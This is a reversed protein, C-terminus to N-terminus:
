SCAGMAGLEMLSKQKKKVCGLLKTSFGYSAKFGKMYRQLCVRSPLVLIKHSRLHEYLRPSKMRLLICELLWEKNYRYGHNSNRRSVEFCARVAPQQKKPLEKLQFVYVSNCFYISKLYLFLTNLTVKEEFFTAKIAMNKEQMKKLADQLSNLKNNRRQLTRMAYKLRKAAVNSLQLRAKKKCRLLRAKMSSRSKKCSLCRNPLQASTRQPVSGNCASSFLCHGSLRGINNMNLKEFENTHGIGSCVTLSNAYSLEGEAQEKCRVDCEKHFQGALFISCKVHGEGVCFVVMKTFVVPPTEGKAFEATQYCAINNQKLKQLSWLESPRKLNFIFLEEAFPESMGGRQTDAGEVDAPPCEETTDLCAGSRKSPIPAQSANRRKREKPLMRSIYKPLNPFVTPVADESLAPISRPILVEAGNIIHKFDRVIFRSDFHRECVASNEELAKDARPIARSWKALM